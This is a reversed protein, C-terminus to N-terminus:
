GKKVVPCKSVVAIASASQLRLNTQIYGSTAETSNEICRCIKKAIASPQVAASRNGKRITPGHM